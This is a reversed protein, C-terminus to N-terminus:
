ADRRDQFRFWASVVPLWARRLAHLPVPRHTLEAFSPLSGGCIAEAM